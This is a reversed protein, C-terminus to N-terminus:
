IKYYKIKRFKFQMIYNQYNLHLIMVMTTSTKTFLYSDSCICGLSKEQGRIALDKCVFTEQETNASSWHNPSATSHYQQVYCSPFLGNGNGSSIDSHVIRKPWRTQMLLHQFAPDWHKVRFVSGEEAAVKGENAKSNVDERCFLRASM